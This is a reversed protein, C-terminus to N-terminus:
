SGIASVLSVSEVTDAPIWRFEGDVVIVLQDELDDVFRVIERGDQGLTEGNVMVVAVQDAFEMTGIKQM